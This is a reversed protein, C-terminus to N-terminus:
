IPTGLEYAAVRDKKCHFQPTLFDLAHGDARRRIVSSRLTGRGETVLMCDTWVMYADYGSAGCLGLGVAASLPPTFDTM